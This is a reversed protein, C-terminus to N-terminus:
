KELEKEVFGQDFLDQNRRINALSCVFSIRSYLDSLRLYPNISDEYTYKVRCMQGDRRVYNSTYIADEDVKVIDQGRDLVLKYGRSRFLRIESLFRSWQTKTIM